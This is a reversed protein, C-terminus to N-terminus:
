DDYGIRVKKLLDIQKQKEMNNMTSYKKDFNPSNKMKKEQENLYNSTKKIIKCPNGIAVSDAPIDKSIVCGAGIICNDEIKVGPLIIANWGIFCNDGITIMGIKSKGLQRKTTADHTLLTCHTLTCNNGIKILHPHTRDLNCNLIYTNSGISVGQRRYEKVDDTLKLKKKIKFLLNKIM